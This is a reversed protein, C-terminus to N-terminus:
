FYVQGFFWDDMGGYEEQYAGETAIQNASGTQGSIYVSGDAGTVVGGPVEDGEGGFYSSWLLTGDESSFCSLGVDYDGGGFEEQHAGQSLPISNELVAAYVYVKSGDYSQEIYEVVFPSYLDHYYSLWLLEGNQDFKSVFASGTGTLGEPFDSAFTGDTGLETDGTRGTAYVGDAAMCVGQVRDFSSSGLFTSWLLSNDSDFCSIYGSNDGEFVTNHAGDTVPFDPSGTYGGVCYKEGFSSILFSSFGTTGGFFTSYIPVGTPNIRTIFGKRGSIADYVPQVADDSVWFDPSNTEGAMLWDGSSLTTMGNEYTFFDSQSGGFFSGYVLNQDTQGVASAALAAFFFFSLYSPITM